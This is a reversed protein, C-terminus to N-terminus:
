KVTPSVTKKKKKKGTWRARFWAQPYSSNAVTKREFRM